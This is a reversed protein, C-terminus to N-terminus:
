VFACFVDEPRSGSSQKFSTNGPSFDSSLTEVYWDTESDFNASWGGPMHVNELDAHDPGAELVLISTNPIEALRGAIM